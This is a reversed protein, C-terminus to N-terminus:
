DEKQTLHELLSKINRVEINSSKIMAEQTRVEWEEFQEQTIAELGPRERVWKLLYPPIEIFNGNRYFHKRGKQIRELWFHYANKIGWLGVGKARAEREIEDFLEHKSYQKYHFALGQRVMELNVQITNENTLMGLYRGYKERGSIHCSIMDGWVLNILLERSEKWLPEGVEPADIHELRVVYRMDDRRITLTDGDIITDATCIFSTPTKM